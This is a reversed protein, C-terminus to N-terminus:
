NIYIELVKLDKRLGDPDVNSFLFQLAVKYSIPLITAKSYEM